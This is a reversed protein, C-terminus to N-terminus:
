EPHAFDGEGVPVATGAAHGGGTDSVRDRSAWCFCLNGAVGVRSEALGRRFLGRGDGIPSRAPLM